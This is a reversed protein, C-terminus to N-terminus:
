KLDRQGRDEWGPVLLLYPAPLSSESWRKGLSPATGAEGRLIGSSDKATVSISVDEWEGKRRGSKLLAHCKWKICGPFRRLDACM